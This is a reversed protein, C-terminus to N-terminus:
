DLNSGPAELDQLLTPILNFQSSLPHWNEEVLEDHGFRPMM